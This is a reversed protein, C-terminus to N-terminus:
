MIAIFFSPIIVPWKGHYFELKFIDEAQMIVKVTNMKCLPIAEKPKKKRSEEQIHAVEHNAL